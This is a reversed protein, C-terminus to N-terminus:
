HQIKLKTMFNDKQTPKITPEVNSHVTPQDLDPRPKFKELFDEPPLAGDTFNIYNPLNGAEVVVIQGAPKGAIYNNIREWHTGIKIEPKQKPQISPFIDEYAVQKCNKFNPHKERQVWDYMFDKLDSNDFIYKDTCLISSSSAQRDGCYSHINAIEDIAWYEGSRKYFALNRRTDPQPKSQEEDPLSIIESFMEDTWDYRDEMINYRIDKSRITVISGAKAEMIPTAKNAVSLDAMVYYNSGARLDPRVRVKTGPQLNAIMPPEKPLSTQKTWCEIQSLVAKYTDGNEHTFKINVGDIEKITCLKGASNKYIDGVKIPQLASIVYDATLIKFKEKLAYYRDSYKGDYYDYCTEEKYEKWKYSLISDGLLEFLKDAEAQTPCHIVVNPQNIENLIQQNM